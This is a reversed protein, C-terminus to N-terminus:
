FPIEDETSGVFADGGFDGGGFDDAKHTAPKSAGESSGSGGGLFKLEIIQLEYSARAEGADNKWVRPGGTTKEPTLRGEIYVQKGKKLYQNCVEALKRWATCRFWVTEEGPSGDGNKWKRNTAVSFSTVADGNSLYKLEPDTGLNGIIVM